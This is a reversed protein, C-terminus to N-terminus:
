SPAALAIALLGTIFVAGVKLPDEFGPNEIDRSGITQLVGVTFFFAQITAVTSFALQSPTRRRVLGEGGIAMGIAVAFVVLSPDLLLAGVILAPTGMHSTGASSIPFTISRGVTVLATVMLALLIDAQGAPPWLVALAIAGAVTAGFLGYRFCLDNRILQERDVVRVAPAGGTERSRSFHGAQRRENDSIRMAHHVRM